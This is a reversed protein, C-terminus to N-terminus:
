LTVLLKRHKAFAGQFPWARKLIVTKGLGFPRCLRELQLLRKTLKLMVRSSKMPSHGLRIIGECNATISNQVAVWQQKM